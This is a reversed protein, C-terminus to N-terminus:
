SGERMWGGLYPLLVDEEEMMMMMVTGVGFM